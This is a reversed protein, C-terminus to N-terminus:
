ENANNEEPKTQGLTDKVKKVIDSLEVQYKFIYDVAGENIAEKVLEEQSFNSLIMVPIEKTEPAQKLSKLIENGSIDPLVQDLLILSVGAEKAKELGEQGNLASLVDYGEKKFATSYVTVLSEDDDIILIKM